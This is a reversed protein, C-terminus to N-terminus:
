TLEALHRRLAPHSILRANLARAQEETLGGELHRHILYDWDWPIPKM